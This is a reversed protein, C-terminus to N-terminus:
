GSTREPETKLVILFIMHRSKGSTQGAHRFGGFGSFNHM